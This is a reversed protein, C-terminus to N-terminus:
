GALKRAGEFEHIDDNGNLGGISTEINVLKSERVAKLLAAAVLWSRNQAHWNPRTLKADPLALWLHLPM